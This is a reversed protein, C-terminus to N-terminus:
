GTAGHIRFTEATYDSDAPVYDVPPLLIHQGELVPRAVAPVLGVFKDPACRFDDLGFVQAADCEPSGPRPVGSQHDMLFMVYTNTETPDVRHRVAVIGRPEARM